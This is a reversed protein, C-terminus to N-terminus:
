SFSQFRQSSNWSQSASRVPWRMGDVATVLAGEDAEDDPKVGDLEGGGGGDIAAEGADGDGGAALVADLYRLLRGDGGPLGELRELV